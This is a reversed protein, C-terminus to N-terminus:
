EVTLARRVYAGYVDADPNEDWSVELASALTLWEIFHGAGGSLATGGDGGRMRGITSCFEWEIPWRAISLDFANPQLHKEWQPQKDDLDPM